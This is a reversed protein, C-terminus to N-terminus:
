KDKLVCDYTVNFTKDKGEKRIIIGHRTSNFNNEYSNVTYLESGEEGEIDVYLIKDEMEFKVRIDKSNDFKKIDFLHQYGEKDGLKDVEEYPMDVSCVGKSYFAYDLLLDEYAKVNFNDHIKNKDLKIDRLYDVCEYVNKSKAIIHEDDFYEIIGEPWIGEGEPTYRQDEKGVIVTNHAITKRHWTAFIESSYGASGIDKSILDDYFAMEITMVDPHSHCIDKIGTKIFLESTDNKLMACFSDEFNQSGFDPLSDADEYEVGYLIEDLTISKNYKKRNYGLVQKFYPNDYLAYAKIYMYHYIGINMDLGSDAPNAISGDRFMIKLPYMFQSEVIDMIEDHEAICTVKNRHCLLLLEAVAALGFFHYGTSAEFWMGDKTVGRRLQDLIGFRSYFARKIIAEDKFFVGINAESVKQWLPINYIKNAFFDFMDAQPTFFGKHWKSMEEKKLYDQAADLGYLLAMTNGADSLGIGSYRGVFRLEPAFAEFDWYNDTLFNMVKRIYEIYKEESTISYLIGAHKVYSCSTGRYMATWAWDKRDGRNEKGCVLCTYVGRKKYDFKLQGSCHDCYFDHGWGAKWEVHDQYSEIFEDTPNKLSDFIETHVDLDTIIKKWNYGTM